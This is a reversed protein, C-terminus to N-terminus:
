KDESKLKIEMYCLLIMIYVTPNTILNHTFFPLMLLIPLFYFTFTNKYFFTNFWSIILISTLMLILLLGAVGIESMIHIFNNHSSLTLSNNATNGIGVGFPSSYFGK